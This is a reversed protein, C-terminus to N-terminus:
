ENTKYINIANQIEQNRFLTITFEYPMYTQDINLRRSINNYCFEYLEVINQHYATPSKFDVQDTMFNIALSKNTQKFLMEITEFVINKHEIEDDTYLINFVGSVVIYDYKSIIKQNHSNFFTSNKYKNLNHQIFDDVIDCGTYDYKKHNEELFDLLHALGCGYDLISFKDKNPVFRMLANFREKQRGKPWMVSKPSDGHIEFAESYDKIIKKIM